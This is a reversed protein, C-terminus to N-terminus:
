EGNWTGRWTSSRYYAATRLWPEVVLIRVLQGLEGSMIFRKVYEISPRLRHQFNVAVVRNSKEAAAILRDAEGVEVAMPKECLVHFGTALCDIAIPVHFPHPACIVAVDPHTAALMSQHDPFLPCNLADARARVGDPKPDSLGVITGGLKQLASIHTGAISAGAGIIAYRLHALSM